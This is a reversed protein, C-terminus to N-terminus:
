FHNLTPFDPPRPSHDTPPTPPLAKMTMPRERRRPTRLGAHGDWDPALFELRPERLQTDACDPHPLMPPTVTVPSNMRAMSPRASLPSIPPSEILLSSTGELPLCCSSATPSLATPRQTDSMNSLRFGIQVTASTQESFERKHSFPPLPRPLRLSKTDEEQSFTTSMSNRLMASRFTPFISYNSGKRPTCPALYVRPPSKVSRSHEVKEEFDAHRTDNTEAVAVSPRCGTVKHSSTRKGAPLKYNDDYRGEHKDLLVPSTIHMTMELDSSGFLRLRKKDHGIGQVSHIVARDVNSRLFIHLALCIIGYLNLAVEAVWATRLADMHRARQAFFPIVFVQAGMLSLDSFSTVTNVLLSTSMTLYYVVRSASIRQNHDLDDTRMLRATIM